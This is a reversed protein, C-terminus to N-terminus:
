PTCAPKAVQQIRDYLEEMKAHMPLATSVIYKPSHDNKPEFSVDSLLSASGLSSESGFLLSCSIRTSNPSITDHLSKLVPLARCLLYELPATSRIFMPNKCLSLSTTTSQLQSSPKESLRGVYATFDKTEENKAALIVLTQLDNSSLLKAPTNQGVTVSKIEHTPNATTDM